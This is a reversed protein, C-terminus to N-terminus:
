LNKPGIRGLSALLSQQGIRRAPGNLTASGVRLRSDATFTGEAAMAGGATINDLAAAGGLESVLVGVMSGAATAQDLTINGSLASVGSDALVGSPALGDLAVDGSLTGGSDGVGLDVRGIGAGYGIDTASAVGDVYLQYLAYDSSGTYSFSSDEYVTLAGSPWRTIPGRVEKNADAPLSLGAYLYGAGDLGGSPVLSGLVGLGSGGYHTGTIGPPTAGYSTSM